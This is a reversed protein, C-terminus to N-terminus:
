QLPCQNLGQDPFEGYATGHHSWFFFFFFKKKLNKYLNFAHLKQM